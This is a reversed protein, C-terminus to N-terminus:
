LNFENLVKLKCDPIFVYNSDSMKSFLGISNIPFISCLKENIRFSHYGLNILIAELKIQRKYRNGEIDGYNPLIECIIFPNHKQIVELLGQIVELEFGEVDIKILNITGVVKKLVDNGEFVVVNYQFKIDKNQRFNKILTAGSGFQKDSYLTEILNTSGIGVPYIKVDTFQNLEILKYLYSVCISNPEFGYYKISKNIAKFKLLTQGVNAGIDVVIIDKQSTLLKRIIELMWFESMGINEFGIRSGLIPIKFNAGGIEKNLFLNLYKLMNTVELLRLFKYKLNIM